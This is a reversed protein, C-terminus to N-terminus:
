PALSAGRRDAVLDVLAELLEAKTPGGPEARGLTIGAETLAGFVLVTLARSPGGKVAAAPPV